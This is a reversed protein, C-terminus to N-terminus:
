AGRGERALEPVDASDHTQNVFLGAHKSTSDKSSDTGSDKEVICISIEVGEKRDSAQM